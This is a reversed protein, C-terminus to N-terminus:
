PVLPSDGVGDDPLIGTIGSSQGVDALGARPLIVTGLVVALLTVLAGRKLGRAFRAIRTATRLQSNGDRRM